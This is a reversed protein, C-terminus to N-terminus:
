LLKIAPSHGLQLQQFRHLNNIKLSNWPCGWMPRTRVPSRPQHGWPLGKYVLFWLIHLKKLLIVANVTFFFFLSILIIKFNNLILSMWALTQNFYVLIQIFKFNTLIYSRSLGISFYENITVFLRVKSAIFSQKFLFQQTLVM